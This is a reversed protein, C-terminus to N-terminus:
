VQIREGREAEFIQVDVLTEDITHQSMRQASQGAAHINIALAALAIFSYSPQNIINFFLYKEIFFKAFLPFNLMNANDFLYM